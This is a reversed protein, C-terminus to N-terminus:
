KQFFFYCSFYKWLIFFIKLSNQIFLDHSCSNLLYRNREKKIKDINQQLWIDAEFKLHARVSTILHRYVIKFTHVSWRQLFTSFFRMITAFVYRFHRKTVYNWLNKTDENRTSLHIFYEILLSHQLNINCYKCSVYQLQSLFLVCINNIKMTESNLERLCQNIKFITVKRKRSTHKNM